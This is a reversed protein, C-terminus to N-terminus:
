VVQVHNRDIKGSANFTESARYRDDIRRVTNIAVRETGRAVREPPRPLLYIEGRSVRVIRRWVVSSRAGGVIEHIPVSQGLWGCVRVPGCLMAWKQGRVDPQLDIRRMPPIETLHCMLTDRYREGKGNREEVSFGDRTM